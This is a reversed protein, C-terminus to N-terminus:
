AAQLVFLRVYSLELACYLSRCLVGGFRTHLDCLVPLSCRGGKNPDHFLDKIGEPPPDILTGLEVASLAFTQKGDLWNYRGPQCM